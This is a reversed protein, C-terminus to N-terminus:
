DITEGSEFRFDNIVWVGERPEPYDSAHSLVPITISIIGALIRIILQTVDMMKISGTM